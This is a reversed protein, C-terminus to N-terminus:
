LNERVPIGKFLQTSVGHSTRWENPKLKPCCSSQCKCLLKANLFNKTNTVFNWQSSKQGIMGDKKKLGTLTDHEKVNWQFIIFSWFGLFSEHFVYTPM